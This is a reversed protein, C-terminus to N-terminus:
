LDMIRFVFIKEWAFVQNSFKFRNLQEEEKGLILTPMGKDTYEGCEIDSSKLSGFDIASTDHSFWNGRETMKKPKCINMEIKYRIGDSKVSDMLVNITLVPSQATTILNFFVLLSLLLGKM